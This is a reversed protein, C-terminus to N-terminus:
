DLHGLRVCLFGSLAVNLHFVTVGCFLFLSNLFRRCDCFRFRGLLIIENALLPFIITNCTCCAKECM